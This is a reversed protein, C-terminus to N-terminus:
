AAILLISIAEEKQLNEQEVIFAEVRTKDLAKVKGTLEEIVASYDLPQIPLFTIPDIEGHVIQWSRNIIQRLQREWEIQRREYRAWEDDGGRRAYWIPMLVDVNLTDDDEITALDASVILNASAAIDDSREITALSAVIDLTGTASIVDDGETIALSVVIALQASAAPTDGAETIAESATINVTGAATAIDDAEIVTLNGFLDLTDFATSADDVEIVNVDANVPGVQASFVGFLSQSPPPARFFRRFVERM